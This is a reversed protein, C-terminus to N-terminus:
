KVRRVDGLAVTGSATNLTLGAAADISVSDVRQEILTELSETRGGVRATTDVRYNGAAARSGRADLGDWSFSTFGDRPVVSVQRVIAGASDRITVDVSTAGEPAVAAGSISGGAELRAGSGAALM